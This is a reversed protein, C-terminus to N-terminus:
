RRAILMSIIILLGAGIAIKPHIVYAVVLFLFLGAILEGREWFRTLDIGGERGTLTKSLIQRGALEDYLVAPLAIIFGFIVLTKM